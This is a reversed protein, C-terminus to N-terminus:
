ENDKPKLNNIYAQEEATLDDEAVVKGGTVVKGAKGLKKQDSEIKLKGLFDIRKQSYASFAEEDMEKLLDFTELEEAIVDESHGAKKLGDALVDKRSKAVGSAKIGALESKISNNSEILAKAWAPMAEDDEKPPDTKPPDNKPPEPPNNKKKYDELKSDSESKAMILLAEAGDVLKTLDEDSLEETLQGNKEHYDAVRDFAKSSVGITKYKSKLLDIYKKKM